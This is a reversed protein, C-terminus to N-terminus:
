RPCVTSPQWVTPPQHMMAISCARHGIRMCSLPEQDFPPCLIYCDIILIVQCVPVEKKPAVDFNFPQLGSM